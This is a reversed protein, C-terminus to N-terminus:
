RSAGFGRRYDPSMTPSTFTFPIRGISGNPNNLAAVEASYKNRLRELIEVPVKTVAVGDISYAALGGDTNGEVRCRLAREMIELMQVAHPAKTGAKSLDAQLTVPFQALTVRRDGDGNKLWVTLYYHGAGLKQTGPDKPGAFFVDLDAGVTDCSTADLAFNDPGTLRAAGTWGDYASPIAILFEISDGAVIQRPPTRLPPTPSTM